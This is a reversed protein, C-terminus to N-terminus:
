LTAERFVASESVRVFGLREEFLRLSGVNDLGIKAIFRRLGCDTVGYRMMLQLAETAAGGRRYAPEAIMIEIEAAHPDEVDNLFFNVDGIMPANRPWDDGSAEADTAALLIFTCKDDDNRWSQQMAYEQELTLPESATAETRACKTPSGCALACRANLDEMGQLETSQMWAHYTPVHEARYPVLVV